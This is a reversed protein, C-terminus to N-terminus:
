YFKEEHDTSCIVEKWDELLEKTEDCKGKISDYGDSGLVLRMPVDKGSKKTLVEFLVKCGKEIDGLQKNNREEFLARVQGVATDDYDQLRTETQMRAGPNLFGTRFYGPEVCCVQIGLPGVEARLSETLGSMAWKTGCYIGGGATGHWSGISGFQAIVGSRQKRMYPLVARTVNLIGFVNVNFSDYTEKASSCVTNTSALDMRGYSLKRQKKLLGKLYMDLLM